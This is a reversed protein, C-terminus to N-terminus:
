ILNTEVNGDYWWKRTKIDQRPSCTGLPRHVLVVTSRRLPWPTFFCFCVAQPSVVYLMFQVYVDANQV